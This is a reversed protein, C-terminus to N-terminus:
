EHCWPQTDVWLPEAAPEPPSRPADPSRRPLLGWASYGDRRVVLDRFDWRRPDIAATAAALGGAPIESRLVHAFLKLAM